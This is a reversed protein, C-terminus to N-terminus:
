GAAIRLSLLPRARDDPAAYMALTQPVGGGQAGPFARRTIWALLAFGAPTVALALWPSTTALSQHLTGARVAGLALLAVAVAAGAAALAVAAYAVLGRAM